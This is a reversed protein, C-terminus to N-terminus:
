EKAKKPKVSAEDMLFKLVKEYKMRSRLNQLRGDRELQTKLREHSIKEAEAIKRLEAELEQESVSIEEQSAIKNLVIERKVIYTARDRHSTMEEKPVNMGELQTNVLSPPAEFPNSELV